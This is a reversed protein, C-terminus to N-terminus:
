IAGVAHWARVLASEDPSSVVKATVGSLQPLFGRGSGGAELLIVRLAGGQAKKDGAMRALLEKADPLGHARTPLGLSSLTGELGSVVQASIMGLAQSAHAAAVIGLSVAQGHSLGGSGDAVRVGPLTEMAHGFTHGLNLLARGAHTDQSTEREDRAVVHAKLAVNWRVLEAAADLDLTSTGELWSALKALDDNLSSVGLGPALIAHKVCESFAGTLESRALTTLADVDAAVLVPAHFAGVYNKLLTGGAPLNVGTKGGVSADVMSLLTTPCQVLAVGRQYSAAFFGAVDGTIGGGLAVIVDSRELGFTAAAEYFRRVTELSKDAEAPRFDVINVALGRAHLSEVLRAVHPDSVGVDRVVLAKRVRPLKLFTGVSALTNPGIHVSYDGM